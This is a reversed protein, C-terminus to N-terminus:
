LKATCECIKKLTSPFSRKGSGSCARCNEVSTVHSEFGTTGSGYCDSCEITYFTWLGPNIKGTKNCATCDVHEETSRRYMGTNNCQKCVIFSPANPLIYTTCPCVVMETRTYVKKKNGGCEHCIIFKEPLNKIQMGHCINCTSM